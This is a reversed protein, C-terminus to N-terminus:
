LTTLAVYEDRSADDASINAIIKDVYSGHKFLGDRNGDEATQALQIIGNNDSYARATTFQTQAKFLEYKVQGVPDYYKTKFSGGQTYDAPNIVYIKGTVVDVEFSHQTVGGAKITVSEPIVPFYRLYEVDGEDFSAGLSEGEIKRGGSQYDITIAGVTTKLVDVRGRRLDVVAIPAFNGAGEAFKTQGIVLPAEALTYVNQDAVTNESQEASMNGVGVQKFGTYPNIYSARQGPNMKQWRRIFLNFGSMVQGAALPKYAQQQLANFTHWKDVADTFSARVMQQAPTNPNSPKAYSRRYQRGKWSAFVGSNGVKGSYKDGFVNSVKVM